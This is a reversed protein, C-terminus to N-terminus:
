NLAQPDAETLFAAVERFFQMRNKEMMVTHTGEGLEVFRRYPARTLRAFYEQAQYSPLDADWEAHIVLTPVRIEGPDYLPKGAQWYDQADAVVGNPARLVPPAQAAGAKDTAFTADAWQEFWGPPILAAQKDEPVGKLWRAKASDRSVSRYAGLAGGGAGILSPTRSLWQPAYLVLRNVKDNHTSTYLGMTSTGWSWGMLDIKDVGRRQRIFDVVQGVIAAADKTRMFPQGDAAPRSMAAPRGSLGYGPLDVLYVDFGLGALYEMMSLGALPLDFATSAPYTAGHVYLLIRDAAFRETGAPRKNRVYISVGDEPGPLRFEETHLAPRDPSAQPASDPAAAAQPIAALAGLGALVLRRPVRGPGSATSRSSRPM